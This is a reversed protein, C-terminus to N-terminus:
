ASVHASTWSVAQDPDDTVFCDYFLDLAVHRQTIMNALSRETFFADCYVLAAAAHDFDPLDNSKIKRGKNWRLSAHLTALVNMTGLTKRATGQMLGAAILDEYQKAPTLDNGKSRGIMIDERRAFLAVADLAMGGVLSSLGRVEMKYAQAFSRLHQVNGAIGDNLDDILQSLNEEPPPKSEIHDILNMLPRTSLHDVFAKQLATETVRDFATNAPYYEGIVFNLKSWVLHSLPHLDMRGVCDHFLHSIEIAIREQQGILTAGLSLEDVLRATARRSTSDRQKIIEFFTTESIPCFLLGRAVGDRLLRLLEEAAVTGRGAAADRLLIWFRTDLYIARRQTLLEGLRIRVTRIHNEISIHPSRLHEDFTQM